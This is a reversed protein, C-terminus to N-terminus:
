GGNPRAGRFHSGPQGLKKRATQAKLRRDDDMEGIRGNGMGEKDSPGGNLHQGTPRDAKIRLISFVDAQNSENKRKAKLIIKDSKKM